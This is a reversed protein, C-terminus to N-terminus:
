SGGSVVFRLKDVRTAFDAFERQLALPPLPLELKELESKPINSMSKASGHALSRVTKSFSSKGLLSSLYTGDVGEIPHMRFVLDPFMLNPADFDVLVCTGVLDPTNKRAVLIDGIMVEKGPLVNDSDFMAKNEEPLYKGSSLASLKLVGPASGTRAEAKCNVSKGSDIQNVCAMLPKRPWRSMLADTDGFMEAFRSKVLEDLHFLYHERDDALQEVLTLKNMREVQAQLSPLPMQMKCLADFKLNSRVTGISQQAIQDLGPKSRLFRVLYGPIVKTEDASFVVYLPSVIANDVKDQVAVSGVNIRSPNYAIMNRHVVRYTRLEKSYVEKNFYEQSPVFGHSNTM